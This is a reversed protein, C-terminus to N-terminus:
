GAADLLSLHESSCEAAFIVVEIQDEANYV